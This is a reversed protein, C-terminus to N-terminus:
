RESNVFAINYFLNFYMKLFYKKLAVYFEKSIKNYEGNKM